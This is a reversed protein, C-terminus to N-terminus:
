PNDAGSASAGRLAYISALLVVLGGASMGVARPILPGSGNVYPIVKPMFFALLAISVVGSGVLFWLPRSLFVGAACVLLLVGSIGGAIISEISGAMVYGMVGGVVSVAGYVGALVAALKQKATAM